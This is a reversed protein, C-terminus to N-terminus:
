ANLLAMQLAADAADCSAVHTQVRPYAKLLSQTFADFHRQSKVIASGWAGVTFPAEPDFDLQRIVAKALEATIAGARRLIDGAALDGADAAENVWQSLGPDKFTRKEVETAVRMLDQGSQLALRTKLHDYLAAPPEAGDLVRSFHALAQCAIWTGSGEDGGIVPPWGGVRCERGAADRGYAISGTGAIVVVGVGGTVAHHALQADNVVQLPCDFGELRRYIAEIDKEDGPVDLGAAGVTIARCDEPSGHFAKLCARISQHIRRFAEEAGIRSHYAPQGIHISLVQGDMGCAKILYKTGGSDIGLVYKM